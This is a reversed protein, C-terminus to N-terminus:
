HLELTRLPTGNKTKILRILIDNNQIDPIQLNFQAMACSSLDFPGIKKSLDGDIFVEIQYTSMIKQHNVVYLNNSISGSESKGLYFETYDSGATTRFQATYIASISWIFILLLLSLATTTGRPYIISKHNFKSMALGFILLSLSSLCILLPLRGLNIISFNALYGWIVVFCISLVLLISSYLYINSIRLDTISQLFYLLAFGPIILLILVAVMLRIFLELLSTNICINQQKSSQIFYPINLSKPQYISLKESDYIKILNENLNIKDFNETWPMLYVWNQSIIPKGLKDIVYYDAFDKDSSTAEVLYSYNISNPWVFEFTKKNEAASLQLSGFVNADSLIRSKNPILQSVVGFDTPKPDPKLTTIYSFFGISSVIALAVSLNISIKSSWGLSKPVMIMLLPFALPIVRISVAGYASYGIIHVVSVVFISWIFIDTNSTSITLVNKTVIWRTIKISCWIGVPVTMILLSILTMYTALRPSYPAIEYPALITNSGFFLPYFVRTSISSFLSEGVSEAILRKLFNEYFVSDFAFYFVIMFLLKAWSTKASNRSKEVRMNILMIAVLMISILWLPTTQYFLFTVIFIVMMLVSYMTKREQLWYWYVILFGLFLSNTWVYTQVSYQSVLRPYSWGAYVALSIAITISNSIIRGLFYYFLVLILTGIPLLAIWEYSMKSIVSFASLLLEGGLHEPHYSSASTVYDDIHAEEISKAIRALRFLTWPEQISKYSFIFGPIIAFSLPFLLFVVNRIFNTFKTSM